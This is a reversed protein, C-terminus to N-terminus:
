GHAECSWEVKKQSKKADWYVTVYVHNKQTKKKVFMTLMSMTKKSNKKAVTRM